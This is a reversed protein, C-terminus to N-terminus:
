CRGSDSSRFVIFGCKTEEGDSVFGNGLCLFFACFLSFDGDNLECVEEGTGWRLTCVFVGVFEGLVDRCALVGIAGDGLVRRMLMVFSWARNDVMSLTAEPPASVLNPSRIELSPKAEGRCLTSVDGGFGAFRRAFACGFFLDTLMESEALSAPSWYM